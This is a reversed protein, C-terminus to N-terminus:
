HLYRYLESLHPDVLSSGAPSEFRDPKLTPGVKGSGVRSVGTLLSEPIQAGPHKIEQEGPFPQWTSEQPAPAKNSGTGLSLGKPHNKVAGKGQPEGQVAPLGRVWGTPGM